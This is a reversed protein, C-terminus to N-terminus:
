VLPRVGIHHVSILELRASITPSAPCISSAIKSPIPTPGIGQLQCPMNLKVHYSLIPCCGDELSERLHLPVGVIGDELDSLEM